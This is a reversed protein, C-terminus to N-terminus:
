SLSRCNPLHGRHVGIRDAFVLQLYAAANGDIWSTLRAIADHLGHGQNRLSTDLQKVPLRECQTM